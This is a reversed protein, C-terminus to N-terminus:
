IPAHGRRVKFLIDKEILPLHEPGKICGAVDGYWVEGTKKNVYRRKHARSRFRYHWEVVQHTAPPTHSPETAQLDIVLVERSDLRSRGLRRAMQRHPLHVAPLQYGMWEWAALVFRCLAFHEGQAVRMLELDSPPDDLITPRRSNHYKVLLEEDTLTFFRSQEGWKIPQIHNLSLEPERAPDRRHAMTKIAENVDDYPDHKDSYFSLVVGDDQTVWTIARTGIMQGRLDLVHVPKALWMFGYPCPPDEPFFDVTEYGKAFAWIKDV